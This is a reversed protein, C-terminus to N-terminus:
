IWGLVGGFLALALGVGAALTGTVAAQRRVSTMDHVWYAVVFFPLYGILWILYPARGHVKCREREGGTRDGGIVHPQQKM